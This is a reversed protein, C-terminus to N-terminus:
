AVLRGRRHIGDRLTLDERLQACDRGSGALSPCAHHNGMPQRCDDVSIADNHQTFASHDFRPRVVLQEGFLTLIRREPGHLEVLASAVM